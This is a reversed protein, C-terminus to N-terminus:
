LQATWEIVPRRRPNLNQWKDEFVRPDPTDGPTTGAFPSAAHVCCPPLLCTPAGLGKSAPDPASAGADAAM